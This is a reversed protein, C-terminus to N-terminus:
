LIAGENKWQRIKDKDISEGKFIKDMEDADLYDYMFLCKALDRVQKEKQTLLTTVRDSSEDLIKKVKIDIM